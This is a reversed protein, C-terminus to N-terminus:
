TDVQVLTQRLTSTGDGLNVRGLYRTDAALGSWGLTVTKTAGATVPQSAPTATLNGAAGPTVVWTDERVTLPGSAAYLVVFLAYNGPTTTAVLEDASGGASIAVAPIQVSGGVVKYLFLDVDTGAPHDVGRTAFRALPTGAPVTVDIRSVSDSVAPALASFSRGPTLGVETPTSPVLGDVAATLTGTYGVQVSLGQSGSTGAGVATAPAAIASPTVAITSRVRHGQADAWTLSGAALQGIPATTRRLTIAFRATGRKTLKLKAPSVLVKFGPPAVIKPSYTSKRDGVNTVTRHVVAKGVLAGVAISAGNYDARSRAVAPCTGPASACVWANWDAAGADYVLGPDFMGKGDVQGAGTAYPTAAGGTDNQIPAGTNDNPSATTMLASKVAMPSWDPHKSLLLAALGAVHPTAMSTGSMLGWLEGGSTPPAVAALVDVGPALLDPKLLDSGGFLSPGRSSFSAVAPARASVLTAAALSATPAADGAIYSVIAARAVEDLHV